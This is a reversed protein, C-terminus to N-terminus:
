SLVHQKSSGDSLYVYWLTNLPDPGADTRNQNAETKKTHKYPWLLLGFECIGCQVQGMDWLAGSLVSIHVNRNRITCQPIDSQHM